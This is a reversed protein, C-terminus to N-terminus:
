VRMYGEHRKINSQRNAEKDCYKCEFRRSVMASPTTEREPAALGQQYTEHDDAIVASHAAPIRHTKSGGLSRSQGIPQPTDFGQQSLQVLARQGRTKSPRRHGAETPGVYSEEQLPTAAPGPGGSTSGM